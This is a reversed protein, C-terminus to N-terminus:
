IHYPIKDFFIIFNSYINNLLLNTVMIKICYGTQMFLLINYRSMIETKTQAVELALAAIISPLSM